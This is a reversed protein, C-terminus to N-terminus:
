YIRFMLLLTDTHTILNLQPRTSSHCYIQSLDAKLLVQLSQLLSYLPKVGEQSQSTPEPEPRFAEVGWCSCFCEFGSGTGTHNLLNGPVTWRRETNAADTEVHLQRAASRFRGTIPTTRHTSRGSESILELLLIM